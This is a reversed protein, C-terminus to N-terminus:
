RHQHHWRGCPERGVADAGRRRGSRALTPSNGKGAAEARYHGASHRHFFRQPGIHFESVALDMSFTSGDRRRGVVERGLGIIKAQGTSLYSRIYDDHQGHYPEPMLMKVNQGIVESARYGFLKEAAPNFSEVTGKADITIIGDIVHDVVSRLMEESRQRGTLDRTIKTFGILQGTENQLATILVSAWFRSGDKRLRWGEEEFRGETQARQLEQEPKGEAVDEPLYLCSFHQGIIEHTKYGKIQEAGVNWSAVRGDPDLLFIAYDRVGEVLLRFREDSQPSTGDLKM